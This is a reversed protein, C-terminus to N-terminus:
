FVLRMRLGPVILWKTGLTLSPQYTVQLDPTFTLNQMVQVRYYIESTIQDRLSKDPPSGWSTAIGLTDRGKPKYTM